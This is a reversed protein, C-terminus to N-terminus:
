VTWLTLEPQSDELFPICCALQACELCVRLESNEAIVEDDDEETDFPFNYIPIEYHEIDEM